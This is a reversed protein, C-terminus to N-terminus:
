IAMRRKSPGRRSIMNGAGSEKSKRKGKIEVAM